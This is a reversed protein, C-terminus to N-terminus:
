TERPKFTQAVWQALPFPIKAIMASAAKRSNSKSGHRTAGDQFWKDGKGNERAGSIGSQKVGERYRQAAVVNFGQAPRSRDNWNIGPVKTADGWPRVSKPKNEETGDWDKWENWNKGPAKLQLTMPMLAPVDGWLYFSGCHWQARGVWKQAGRVNEVIM